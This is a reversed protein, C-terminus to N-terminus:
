IEAITRMIKRKLAREKRRQKDSMVSRKCLANNRQRRRRKEKLNESM